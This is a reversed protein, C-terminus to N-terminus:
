GKRKFQPLSANRKNRRNVERVKAFDPEISQLRSVLGSLDYENSTTGRGPRTRFVRTVLGAKEMAVIHRQVTKVSVRMREAILEKTPFPKGEKEWWMDLLHLLINMQQPELGLRAQAQILLSPVICFGLDMVPKGFKRESMKRGDPKQKIRIVKSPKKPQENPM